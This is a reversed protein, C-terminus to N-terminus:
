RVICYDDIDNPVIDEHLKKVFNILQHHSQASSRICNVIELVTKMAHDCKFYRAALHRRNFVCHNRLVEPYSDDTMTLAIVGSHKGLM